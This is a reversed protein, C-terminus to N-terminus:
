RKVVESYVCRNKGACVGAWIAHRHPLGMCRDIMRCQAVWLTCLAERRFCMVALPRGIERRQLIEKKEDKVKGIRQEM